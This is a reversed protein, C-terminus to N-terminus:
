STSRKPERPEGQLSSTPTRGVSRPTRPNAFDSGSRVSRRRCRRCMRDPGNHILNCRELPSTGSKRFTRLKGWKGWKGLSWWWGAEAEAEAEAEVEAEVEAEAEAETEVEAEVESWEM